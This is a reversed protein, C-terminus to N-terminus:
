RRTGRRARDSGRGRGSPQVSPPNAGAAALRAELWPLLLSRILDTAGDSSLGTNRGAYYVEVLMVGIVAVVTADADLPRVAERILREIRENYRAEPLAWADNGQDRDAVRVEWWGTSRESFAAIEALLREVREIAGSAGEFISADPMALEDLIADAAAQALDGPTPFHNRVTAPSVDAARAVVPVTTASIGVERYLRLTAALIRSRTEAMAEGRRGLRYQRPV